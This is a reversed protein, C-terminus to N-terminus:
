FDKFHDSLVQEHEPVLSQFNPQRSQLHREVEELDLPTEQKVTMNNAALMKKPGPKKKKAPNLMKPHGPNGNAM